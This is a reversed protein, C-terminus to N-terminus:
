AAQARRDLQLALDAARSELRGPLERDFYDLVEETLEDQVYLADGLATAAKYLDACKMDFVAVDGKSPVARPKAQIWVGVRSPRFGSAPAPGTGPATSSTAPGPLAAPASYASRAPTSAARSDPVCCYAASRRSGHGAM